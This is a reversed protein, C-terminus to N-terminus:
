PWHSTSLTQHLPFLYLDVNKLFGILSIIPTTNTRQVTQCFNTSKLNLLLISLHFIVLFLLLLCYTSLRHPPTAQLLFICNPFCLQRCTFCRPLLFTVLYRHPPNTTYCSTSEQWLHKPNTFTFSVLNSYYQQKSTLILKHYKNCLSKFSSCDFASHIHKCLNEIHCVTSRFVRVASTFQPNCPSQHKTFKAIM